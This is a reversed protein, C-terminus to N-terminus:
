CVANASSDTPVGPTSRVLWSTSGSAPLAYKSAATQLQWRAPLRAQCATCRGYGPISLDSEDSYNDSDADEPQAPEDLEDYDSDADRVLRSSTGATEDPPWLQETDDISAKDDDASESNAAPLQKAAQGTAMDYPAVHAAADASGSLSQLLAGPRAM